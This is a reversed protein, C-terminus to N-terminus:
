LDKAVTKVVDQDFYNCSMGADVVIGSANIGSSMSSLLFLVTNAVEQTHLAEKRLTLKEAFLYNDIYGPIGASATTKLPGACVANFRVRSFESFSKALFAVTADLSAKIPGMYGYSTARTNSISMTVVSSNEKLVNKISHSMSTLSFCSITNAQVYDALKTEHFPKIGQSYNAFAMSHLFGDLQIGQSELAPGLQTVQEENEVDVIFCPVDPFLKEVKSLVQENQVTLYIHAGSECLSQAVFYAISKKNAVGSILFSKGKLNLLNM